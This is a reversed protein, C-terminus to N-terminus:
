QVLLLFPHFSIAVLHVTALESHDLLFRITDVAIKTM